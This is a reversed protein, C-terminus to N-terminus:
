EPPQFPEMLAVLILRDGTFPERAHALRCNDILHVDGEQWRFKVLEADYAANIHAIVEPDIAGGDGYYTNYPLEDEGFESVLAERIHAERTTIHFFAAHNHWLLEGSRPHALVPNRIQRTRLRDGDRWEFEIRNEKCYAEVEARDNTQFVEQWPLAFGENYNRQLMWKRRVFEERIEPDIRNYVGHVDGIPTEGGTEPATVCGFIAKLAHATWYSGENHLRITYEPPYITTCYVNDGYTTRPTSRDRYPLRAGDAVLNTFTEFGEIGGSEFHRFLLSRKEHFLKEIFPRNGKAWENLDLGEVKPTVLTPYPSDESLPRIDVWDEAGTGLSRRRATTPLKKM